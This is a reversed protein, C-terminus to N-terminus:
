PQHRWARIVLWLLTASIACLGPPLGLVVFIATFVIKGSNSASM